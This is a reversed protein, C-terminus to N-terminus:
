RPSGAVGARSTIARRGGHRHHRPGLRYFELVVSTVALLLLLQLAFYGFHLAESM